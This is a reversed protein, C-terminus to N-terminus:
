SRDGSRVTDITDDAATGFFFMDQSGSLVKRLPDIVAKLISFDNDQVEKRAGKRRAKKKRSKPALPDVYDEDSDNDSGDEEEELELHCPDNGNVWETQKQVIWPIELRPCDKILQRRAQMSEM